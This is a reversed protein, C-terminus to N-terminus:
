LDTILMRFLQSAYYYVKCDAKNSGLYTIVLVKTKDDSFTYIAMSKDKQINSKGYQTTFKKVLSNVKKNSIVNYTEKICYLKDKVLLFDKQPYTKIRLIKIDNMLNKDLALIYNMIKNKYEPKDSPSFEVYKTGAPINNKIVKNKSIAWSDNNSSYLGKPIVFFVLALIIIFTINFNYNLGNRNKIM